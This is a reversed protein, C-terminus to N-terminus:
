SAMNLVEPSDDMPLPQTIVPRIETVTEEKPLVGFDWAACLRALFDVHEPLTGISTPTEADPYLAGDIGSSM